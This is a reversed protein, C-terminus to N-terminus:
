VVTLLDLYLMVKLENRSERIVQENDSLKHLVPAVLFFIITASIIVFATGKFINIWKLLFPDSFIWQVLLDSGWIWILSFVLYIVTIRLALTWTPKRDNVVIFKPQLDENSMYNLIGYPAYFQGVWARTNVTKKM